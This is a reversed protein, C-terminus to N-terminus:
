AGTLQHRFALLSATIAVNLSEVGNAMPIRLNHDALAQVASSVGHTENGLVFITPALAQFEGLSQRAHSSLGCVKAGAAQFNQLAAALDDCRLIPCRFLAGASAKIVLPDIQACGKKPLLVGAIGSAAVTRLIMGLNQPNTIGDLALLEYQNPATKLFDEYARYGGLVLDVAVGQDQKGNRSIRSLAQKSHYCIEANHRQAIAVIDDLIAASKNSDALHLRHIQIGPQQLAELVPKRGYITLLQDYFQKRQQYEESDNM